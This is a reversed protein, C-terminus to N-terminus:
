PERRWIVAHQKLFKRCAPSTRHERWAEVTRAQVYQAFTVVPMVPRPEWPPFSDPESSIYFDSM